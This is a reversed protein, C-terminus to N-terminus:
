ARTAQWGKDSEPGSTGKGPTARMTTGDVRGTFTASKGDGMDVVFRIDAGRLTVERLPLAKGDM